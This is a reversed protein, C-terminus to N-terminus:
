GFSGAASAHRDVSGLCTLCCQNISTLLLAVVHVKITSFSPGNDLCKQSHTLFDFYLVSIPTCSM